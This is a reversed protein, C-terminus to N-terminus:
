KIGDDDIAEDDRGDLRGHVREWEGISTKRLIALCACAYGILAGVFTGILGGVVFVGVDM